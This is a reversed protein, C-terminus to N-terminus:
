CVLVTKVQMSENKGVHLLKRHCAIFIDDNELWEGTVCLMLFNWLCFNGNRWWIEDGKDLKGQKPLTPWHLYCFILTLYLMLVSTRKM